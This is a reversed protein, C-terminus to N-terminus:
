SLKALFSAWGADDLQVPNGSMSSGQSDRALAPLLEPDIGFGKLDKPIGVRENLATIAAIGQRAAEDDPGDCGTLARGVDGLLPTAASFNLAMVHPLLIACALGHGIGLHAGLSAAIGHAAGLGSNALCLGSVTACLAMEERAAQNQGDEVAIPLAKYARPLMAIAMAQPIPQAKKSIYSEILQTIADMGSAATQAPPLNLTLLPDILAVNALLKDSRFSKKYGDRRSTIVANKTVEAGTGSTTPVAIFPLPDRTMVRGNGVGELYDTVPGGNPILGALAKGTDIASGGGIALVVDCGEAAALGAELTEPEPESDVGDFLCFDLKETHLQNVLLQWKGMRRLLDGQTVILVRSGYSAVLKGLQDFGGCGFQIKGASLFTFDM